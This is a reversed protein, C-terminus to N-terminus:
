HQTVLLQLLLSGASALEGLSPLNNQGGQHQSSIQLSSYEKPPEALTPIDDYSLDRTCHGQPPSQPNSSSCTMRKLHSRVVRHALRPKKVCHSPEELSLIFVVSGSFASNPPGLANARGCEEPSVSIMPKQRGGYPVGTLWMEMLAEPWWLQKAGLCCAM